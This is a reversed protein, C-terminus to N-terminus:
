KRQLWVSCGIVRGTFLVIVPDLGSYQNCGLCMPGPHEHPLFGANYVANRLFESLTGRFIPSPTLSMVSMLGVVGGGLVAEVGGAIMM